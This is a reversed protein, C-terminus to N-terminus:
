STALIIITVLLVIISDIIRHAKVNRIYRQLILDILGTLVAIFALGFMAVIGWGEERSLTKYNVISFILIGTLYIGTALNLITLKYKM